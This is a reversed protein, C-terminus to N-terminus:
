CCLLLLLGVFYGVLCMCVCVLLRVSGEWGVSEVYSCHFLLLLLM